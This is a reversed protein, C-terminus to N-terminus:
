SNIYILIILWVVPSAQASPAQVGEELEVLADKTM